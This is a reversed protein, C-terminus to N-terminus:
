EDSEERYMLGRDKREEELIERPFYSPLCYFIVFGSVPIMYNLMYSPIIFFKPKEESCYRVLKTTIGGKFPNISRQVAKSLAFM